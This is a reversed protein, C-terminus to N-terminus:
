GAEVPEPLRIVRKWDITQQYLDGRLRDLDAGAKIWGGHM